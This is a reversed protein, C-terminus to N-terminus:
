LYPGDEVRQDGLVHVAEVLHRTGGRLPDDLNMPRGAPGPAGHAVAAAQGTLVVLLSLVLSLVHRHLLTMGM